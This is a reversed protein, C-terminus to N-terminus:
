NLAMQFLFCKVTIDSMIRKIMVGNKCFDFTYIGKLLAIVNKSSVEGTAVKNFVDMLKTAQEQTELIKWVGIKDFRKLTQLRKAQLLEEDEEASVENQNKEM